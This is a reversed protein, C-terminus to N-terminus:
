AGGTPKMRDQIAFLAIQRLAYLAEQLVKDRQNAAWVAAEIAAEKTVAHFECESIHNMTEAAREADPSRVLESLTRWARASAM